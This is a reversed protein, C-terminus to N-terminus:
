KVLSRNKDFKKSIEEHFRKIEKPTSIKVEVVFAFLNPANEFSLNQIIQLVDNLDKCDVIQLLSIEDNKSNLNFNQQNASIKIIKRSNITNHAEHTTKIPEEQIKTDSSRAVLDEELEEM